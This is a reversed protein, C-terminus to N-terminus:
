ARVQHINSRAATLGAAALSWAGMSSIPLTQKGAAASCLQQDMLAQGLLRTRSGSAMAESASGLISLRVPMPMMSCNLVSESGGDNLLLDLQLQRDNSVSM